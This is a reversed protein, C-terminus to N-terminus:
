GGLEVRSTQKKIVGRRLRDALIHRELNAVAEQVSQRMLELDAVSEAFTEGHEQLERRLVELMLVVGNLSGRLDHSLFSMSRGFSEAASRLPKFADELTRQMEHVTAADLVERLHTMEAAGVRPAVDAVIARKLRQLRALENLPNQVEESPKGAEDQRGDADRQLLQIAHEIFSKAEERKGGQAQWSAAAQPLTESLVRVLQADRDSKDSVM